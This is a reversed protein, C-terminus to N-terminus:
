GMSWVQERAHVGSDTRGSPVMAVDKGYALRFAGRMADEISPKCEPGGDHRSDDKGGKGGHHQSQWGAYSAGPHVNTWDRCITCILVADGLWCAAVRVQIVLTLNSRATLDWSNM